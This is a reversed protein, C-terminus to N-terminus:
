RYRLRLVFTSILWLVMFATWTWSSSPRPLPDGEVFSYTLAILATAGGAIALSEVLIRRQFEDTGALFRVVAIFVFIMPVMPLLAVVTEAPGTVGRFFYRTGLIVLMYAVIALTFEILYRRQAQTAPNTAKM